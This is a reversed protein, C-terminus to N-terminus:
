PAFFTGIALVAPPERLYEIAQWLVTEDDGCSPLLRRNCRKCLLGRILGTKHDHDVDLNQRRLGGCIACKGDQAALLRNYDDETIGYTETLHQNRSNSRRRAKRCFSCTRGRPGSYFREARNKGCRSCPRRKEAV